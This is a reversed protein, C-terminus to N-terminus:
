RRPAASDAREPADGDIKVTIGRQLLAEIRGMREGLARLENIMTKRQDAASIRGAVTQDEGEAPPAPPVARSQAQASAQLAPVADRFPDVIIVTLLGAIATLMINQYVRGRSLNVRSM